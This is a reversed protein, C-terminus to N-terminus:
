SKQLSRDVLIGDTMKPGFAGAKKVKFRLVFLDGTGELLPKNGINIFTPYVSKQGNSHLRDNTFNRMERLAIPKVSVFEYETPVYALAFSLANVAQLGLGRVTIEATDGVEYSKKDPVLLLKGAVARGVEQRAPEDLEVAVNSIDYADILGNGNIDGKSIYGEFDKDGQRLGTYNLYSTLDNEDLQGDNNIDGPIYSPTGKAKFVYLEQGSGFGGYGKEVKIRIYRATPHSQFVFTKHSADMAWAINGADTWSSKDMSCAVHASMIMGNAGVQRPIYVMKDLTNVSHLDIVLEFQVAQTGGKTHWM